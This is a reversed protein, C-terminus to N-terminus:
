RPNSTYSILKKRWSASNTTNDENLGAETMDRKCADDVMLKAGEEEKGPIDMDLIRRVIHEEKMRMVHAYSTLRKETIKKSAQVM